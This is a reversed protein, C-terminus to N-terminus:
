ASEKEAQTPEVFSDTVKVKSILYDYVSDIFASVSINNIGNRWEQEGASPRYQKMYESFAEMRKKIEGQDPQINEKKALSQVIVFERARSEGEERCGHEFKERDFDPQATLDMGHRRAEGMLEDAYSQSYQEIMKPPLDFKTEAKLKDMIDKKLKTQVSNKERREESERIGKRLEEVTKYSTESAVFEDTLEPLRKEKLTNVKVRFDVKKEALEPDPYQKPLTISFNAEEGKKMGIIKKTFDHLMYKEDDTVALQQNKSCLSEIEKGDLTGTYDLFVYDGNKVARDEVPVMEAKMERLRDIVGEVRKDDVKVTERRFEWGSIDPFEVTPITEVQATFSLPKGEEINVNEIAPNGFVNIDHDSLAKEMGDNILQRGIDHLVTKGYLRKIVAPPVHGKRFGQVKAKKMVEKLAKESEEAVAKEPIEIALKKVCPQVETIEVKIDDLAEAM